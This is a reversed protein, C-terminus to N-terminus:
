LSGNYIKLAEKLRNAIIGRVRPPELVEVKRGFSLIYGYVWEDEPYSTTVDYTNNDNKVISEADFDDYIRYLAEEKFRLKLTVWPRKTEKQTEEYEMHDMLPTQRRKFVEDNVVLEKIRSIRFIRFNEKLRCYGYLYWGVGKYILKMAEVYRQSGEGRSNIYNFTMMKRKLIAEKIRNFKQNENPNSGWHSFDVQVWDEDDDKFLGSIKAIASDIEPYKTAKLTKLAIILSEKDEKSLFTKSLSYDEMISIGGGKGKSMYVPVGAMSLTEIDRYITRTSVEFREALEKAKIVEKKLLLVTIEILRNIKM